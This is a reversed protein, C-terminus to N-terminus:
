LVQSSKIDSSLIAAGCRSHGIMVVISRNVGLGVAKRIEKSESKRIASNSFSKLARQPNGENEAQRDKTHLPLLLLLLLLRWGLLLLLLPLLIQVTIMQRAVAIM